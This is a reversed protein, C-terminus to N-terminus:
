KEIIIVEVPCGEAAEKVAEINGDIDANPIVEALDNIKFVNPCVSECLGCAICGDIIKAKM